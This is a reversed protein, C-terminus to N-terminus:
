MRVYHMCVYMCAYMCAFANVCVCVCVCLHASCAIGPDSEGPELVGMGGIGWPPPHPPPAPTM